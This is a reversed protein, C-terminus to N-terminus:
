ATNVRGLEDRGDRQGADITEVYRGGDWWTESRNHCAHSLRPARAGWCCCVQADRFAQRCFRSVGCRVAGVRAVAGGGRALPEDCGRVVARGDARGLGAAGAMDNWQAVAVRPNGGEGDTRTGGRRGRVQRDWASSPSWYRTMTAPGPCGEAPSALCLSFTFGCQGKLWM